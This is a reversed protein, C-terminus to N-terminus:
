YTKPTIVNYTPFGYKDYTDRFLIHDLCVCVCVCLFIFIARSIIYARLCYDSLLFISHALFSNNM